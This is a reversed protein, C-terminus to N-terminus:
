SLQLLSQKKGIVGIEIIHSKTNVTPDVVM